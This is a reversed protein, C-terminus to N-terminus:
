QRTTTTEGPTITPNVNITSPILMAGLGTSQLLISKSTSPKNDNCAIEVSHTVPFVDEERMHYVEQLCMRVHGELMVIGGAMSSTRHMIGQLVPININQWPWRLARIEIGNLVDPVQQIPPHPSPGNEGSIGPFKCTPTYHTTNFKGWVYCKRNLVFTPITSYSCHQQDMWLKRRDCGNFEIITIFYGNAEHHFRQATEKREALQTLFSTQIKTTVPHISVDDVTYYIGDGQEFPYENDAKKYKKGM